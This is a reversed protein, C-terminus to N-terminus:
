CLITVGMGSVPVVLDAVQLWVWDGQPIGVSLTVVREAPSSGGLAVTAAVSGMHPTTGHCVNVSLSGPGVIVGYLRSLLGPRELRFPRSRWDSSPYEVWWHCPEQVLTTAAQTETHNGRDRLINDSLNKTAGPSIALLKRKDSATMVGPGHISAVRVGVTLPSDPILYVPNSAYAGLAPVWWQGTASGGLPEAPPGFNWWDLEKVEASGVGLAANGHIAFGAVSVFPDPM